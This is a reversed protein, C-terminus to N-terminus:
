RAASVLKALHEATRNMDFAALVKERGAAGLRLRLDPDSYLSHIAKALLEADGPPVLVGSLGDDVLEPIGSIQSAVVPVGSAMAEMLVVPIGERRGARTRVSPAVLVDVRRLLEAIQERNLPPVFNVRAQLGASAVLQELKRSDPGEGVVHCVFEVDKAALVRCAEILYSQGKVEMLRGICAITFPSAVEPPQGRPRFVQTDVGSHIVVTKEAVQGGCHDLILRRNYESITVVFAAQAVKERLMHRDVHLDSGHATFSFPIGTLRHMILGAAAPHSAFHCHIHEIGEATALRALYAVKPFIALAGGLYNLSGMNARVILALTSLYARPRQRLHHLQARIIPGSLFPLFRARQVLRQVEAHMVPERQRLLPYISIQFGLREMALMEYLVFTETLKPFRSMVYAVRPHRPGLGAAFSRASAASDV